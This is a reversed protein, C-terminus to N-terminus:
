KGNNTGDGALFGTVTAKCNHDITCGISGSSTLVNVPVTAGGSDFLAGSLAISSSSPTSAGGTTKMEYSGGGIGVFLDVGVKLDAFDIGIKSTNLVAGPAVSGDTVTPSTAGVLSYQVALGPSPADISNVPLNTALLGDVFHLGGNTTDNPDSQGRDYVHRRDLAGM